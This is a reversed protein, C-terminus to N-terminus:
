RCFGREAKELFQLLREVEMRADLWTDQVVISQKRDHNVKIFRTGDRAVHGQGSGDNLTSWFRSPRQVYQEVAEKKEVLQGTKTKVRLYRWAKIHFSNVQRMRTPFDTLAHTPTTEVFLLTVVMAAVCVAAGVGIGAM